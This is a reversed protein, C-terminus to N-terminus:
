KGGPMFLTYYGADILIGVSTLPNHELSPLIKCEGVKDRVKNRTLRAQKSAQFARDDSMQVRKISIEGIPIAGDNSRM